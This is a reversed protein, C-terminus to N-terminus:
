VIISELSLLYEVINNMVSEVPLNLWNNNTHNLMSKFRQSKFILRIRAIISELDNEKILSDNFIIIDIYKKLESHNYLMKM